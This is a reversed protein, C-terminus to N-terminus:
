KFPNLQYESSEILKFHQSSCQYKNQSKESLMHFFHWTFWTYISWVINLAWLKTIINNNNCYCHLGYCNWGWRKNIMTAGSTLREPFLMECWHVHFTTSTATKSFVLFDLVTLLIDGQANVQLKIKHLLPLGGRWSLLIIHSSWYINHSSRHSENGPPPWAFIM